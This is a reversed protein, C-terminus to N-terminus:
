FDQHKLIDDVTIEKEIVSWVKMLKKKLKEGQRNLYSQYFKMDSNLKDDKLLPPRYKGDPMKEGLFKLLFGFKQFDGPKVINGNKKLEIINNLLGFFLRKDYDDCSEFYKYIDMNACIKAVVVAEKSRISERFYEKKFEDLKQELKKPDYNKTLKTRKLEQKMLGKVQAYFEIVKSNIETETCYYILQAFGLIEKEKFRKSIMNVYTNMSYNEISRAKGLKIFQLAHNIEHYVLTKKLDTLTIFLEVNGSKFRKSYSVNFFGRVNEREAVTPMKEGKKIPNYTVNLKNIPLDTIKEIEEKYFFYDRPEKGEKFIQNIIYDSLKIVEQNIGVEEFLKLYKM